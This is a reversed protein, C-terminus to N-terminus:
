PRKVVELTRSVLRGGTSSAELEILELPPSTACDGPLGDAYRDAGDWYSVRAVTVTIGVPPPPLTDRYTSTTGCPQYVMTEAAHRLAVDADAQRRQLDSGVIATGLGGVIVAFAVGMIFVSVVVEILTVGAEDGSRARGWPSCGTM